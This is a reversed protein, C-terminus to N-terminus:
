AALTSNGTDKREYLIKGQHVARSILSSPVTSKSTVEAQTAVVLDVPIMLCLSNLSKYAKQALQYGKEPSPKTVILLDFDSDRNPEGYAYSGFLIIQEPNLSNVLNKVIDDILELSFTELM